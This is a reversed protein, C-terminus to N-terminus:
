LLEENPYEAEAWQEIRTLIQEHGERVHTHLPLSGLFVKGYRKEMVRADLLIVFGRDTKSRILRGFGQKFRLVAEPLLFDQFSNKGKQELYESRAAILPMSPAWFPLKLLIVCSLGDGPIDIGEWFSNAGLLIAKPNELFEALISARSRNKGQALVEIGTPELLSKLPEEVQRLLQHSTFLVLTRGKMRVGVDGIFQTVADIKFLGPDRTNMLDKVILFQMQLDYNFPSHVDLAVTKPPLGVETLYHDFSGEISITASTLIAADLQNFLKERLLDSVEVPSTKLYVRQGNIELWSVRAPDDIQLLLEFCQQLLEIARIRATIEYGLETLEDIELGNLSQLMSNLVQKLRKLRGTMNEIQTAFYIWWAEQRSQPTLRISQGLGLIQRLSPFLEESQELISDCDDPLELWSVQFSEWVDRPMIQNWFGQKSKIGGYLSSGIPRYVQELARNLQEQSVDQGLQELAAQHLHHAEDIVLEHYEPLVNHDAKVDALLLSHNVVVVDAEEAKRRARLMFCNGSEPCKQPVCSENEANIYSWVRSVGYVQAIEQWDGTQTESLWVLISALVIRERDTLESPYTQLTLWKKLCLYNSKGKLLAGRFGFPLIDTLVPLDKQYLQEQLPITHTAVVVKKGTKRAWWLAPILYAYSKGIGTGAEVVLHHSSQLAESVAQAMQIQGHRSEYSLLKNELLGKPAFCSQIWDGSDPVGELTPEQFFLGEGELALGNRISRSPFKRSIEQELAKFLSQESLGELLPLARAYFGLDFEMGKQWCEELLKWSAWADTQARHLSETIPLNLKKVLESLRYHHMSPFFIQALKWTDWVTQRFKTGLQCELFDLDFRVNHGVLIAGHLFQLIEERYDQLSLGQQLELESIGTLKLLKTPVAHLPKILFHQLVPDKGDEICWAAYEIIEDQETNLGTTELDLVVIKGTYM